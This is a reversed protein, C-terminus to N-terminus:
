PFGAPDLTWCEGVDPGCTGNGFLDAVLAEDALSDNLPLQLWDFLDEAAGMTGPVPAPLPLAMQVGGVDAGALEYVADHVDPQVASDQSRFAGNINTPPTALDHVSQTIPLMHNLFHLNLHYLRESRHALDRDPSIANSLHILSSILLSQVTFPSLRELPYFRKYCTTIYSIRIASFAASQLHVQQASSGHLASMSPSGSLFPRHLMIEYAHAPLPKTSVAPSKLASFLNNYFASMAVHTSTAKNEKAKFSLPSSPAYIENLVPLVMRLLDYAYNMNSMSHSTLNLPNDPTPWPRYEVSAISPVSVQSIDRYGVISPQRLIQTIHSELMWIGLWLISRAERLETSVSGAGSTKENDTDFGLLM